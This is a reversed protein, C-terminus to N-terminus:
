KSQNHSKTFKIEFVRKISHYVRIIYKLDYKGNMLQSEFLDDSRTILIAEQDTRCSENNCPIYKKGKTQRKGWEALVIFSHSSGPKSWSICSM